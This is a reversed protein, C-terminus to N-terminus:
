RRVEGLAQAQIRHEAVETHLGHEGASEIAFDVVAGERGDNSFRIGVVGIEHKRDMGIGTRWGIIDQLQIGASIGIIGVGIRIHVLARILSASDGREHTIPEILILHTRERM